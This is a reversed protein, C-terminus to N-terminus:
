VLGCVTAAQSSVLHQMEVRDHIPELNPKRIHSRRIQRSMESETRLSMRVDSNREFGNKSRPSTPRGSAAAGTNRGGADTPRTSLLQSSASLESRGMGSDGDSTQNQVRAVPLQRVPTPTLPDVVEYHMQKDSDVRDVTLTVPPSCARVYRVVDNHPWGRVIRANVQVAARLRWVLRCVDCASWVMLRQSGWMGEPNQRWGPAWCPQGATTAGRQVRVCVDARIANCDVAAAGVGGQCRCGLWERRRRWGLPLGSTGWTREKDYGRRGAHAAMFLANWECNQVCARMCVRVKGKKPQLPAAPTGRSPSSGCVKEHHLLDGVRLIRHCGFKYRPCRVFQSEVDQDLAPVLNLHSMEAPGCEYPCAGYREIWVRVCSFCFVHGCKTAVASRIVSNCIGCIWHENVRDLFLHTPYGGQLWVSSM